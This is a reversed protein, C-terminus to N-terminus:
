RANIREMMWAMLLNILKRAVMSIVIIVVTYALLDASALFIKAQYLYSGLFHDPLGILEAAIGAKFCLSIGMTLGTSLWPFLQPFLIYRFHNVGHIHFVKTVDNLGSDLQNLGKDLQIYVLPLVMLLSIILSLYKSPYWILLLIIFSAIPITQVLHMLPMIWPKVMPIKYTIAALVAAILCGMTFGLLIHLTSNLIAGYFELQSLWYVLSQVVEFPSALLLTSDVVIAVIQWVMIWFLIPIFKSPKVM